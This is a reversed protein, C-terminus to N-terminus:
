GKEGGGVSVRLVEPDEIEMEEKRCTLWTRVPKATRNGGRPALESRLFAMRRVMGRRRLAVTLTDEKVQDALGLEQLLQAYSLQRNRISSTIFAEIESLRADTLIRTRGPRRQPSARRTHCTYQVASITLNLHSAIQFYNHGLRRM